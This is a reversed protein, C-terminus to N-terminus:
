SLAALWLPLTVVAALTGTTVLFAVASMQTALV